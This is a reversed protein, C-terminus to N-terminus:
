PTTADVTSTSNASLFPRVITAVESVDTFAAVHDHDELAVFTTGPGIVM